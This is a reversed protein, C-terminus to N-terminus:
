EGEHGYAIFLAAALVTLRVADGNLGLLGDFSLENENWSLNTTERERLDCRQEKRCGWQEESQKRRNGEELGYTDVM